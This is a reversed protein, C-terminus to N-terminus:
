LDENKHGIRGEKRSGFINSIWSFSGGRFLRLEECQEMEDSTAPM